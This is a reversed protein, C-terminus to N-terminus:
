RLRQRSLDESVTGISRMSLYRFFFGSAQARRWFFYRAQYLFKEGRLFFVPSEFTAQKKETSGHAFRDIRWGAM